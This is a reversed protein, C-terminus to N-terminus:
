HLDMGNGGNICFLMSTRPQDRIPMAQVHFIWVLSLFHNFPKITWAHVCAIKTETAFPARATGTLRIPDLEQKGM